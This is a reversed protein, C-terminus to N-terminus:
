ATASMLPTRVHMTLWAGVDNAPRAPSWMRAYWGCCQVVSGARRHIAVWVPGPHRRIPSQSHALGAEDNNEIYEKGREEEAGAAGIDAGAGAGACRRRALCGRHGAGNRRWALQWNGAADLQAGSGIGQGLERDPDAELDRWELRRRHPKGARLRRDLLSDTVEVSSAGAAASVNWITSLTTASHASWSVASSRSGGTPGDTSSRTVAM